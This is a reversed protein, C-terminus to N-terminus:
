IFSDSQAFVKGLEALLKPAGQGGQAPHQALEVARFGHDLAGEVAQSAFAAFGVAVASGTLKVAGPDQGAALGALVPKISDRSILPGTHALPGGFISVILASLRGQDFFM